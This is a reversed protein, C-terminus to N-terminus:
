RPTDGPLTSLPHLVRFYGLGMSPSAGRPWDRDEQPRSSRVQSPLPLPTDLGAFAFDLFLSLFLIVIPIVVVRVIPIVILNVILNAIVITEWRQAVIVLPWVLQRGGLFFAVCLVSISLGMLHEESVSSRSSCRFLLRSRSLLKFYAV